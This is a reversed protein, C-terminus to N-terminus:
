RTGARAYDAAAKEVVGLDRTSREAEALLDATFMTLGWIGNDRKRFAYRTGRVTIVSAREGQEEVSAAGSLDRRLRRDWGRERAFLAFVDAGDATEALPAYARELAGREEPPYSRRVLELARRRNDRVTFCAWQAETELYPFAIEPHGDTLGHAIRMYAGEPTHDSPFPRHQAVAATVALAVVAAGLYALKPIARRPAKAPTQLKAESSAAM